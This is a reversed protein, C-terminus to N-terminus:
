VRKRKVVFSQTKVYISYQLQSEKQKIIDVCSFIYYSCSISSFRCMRPTAKRSLTTLLTYSGDEARKVVNDLIYIFWRRSKLYTM